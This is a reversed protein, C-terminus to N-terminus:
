RQALMERWILGMSAAANSGGDLKIEAMLYRYQMTDIILHGTEDAASRDSHACAANKNITYTDAEYVAGTAPWNNRYEPNILKESSWTHAGLVPTVDVLLEGPGNEMWGSIVIQADEDAADTGFVRVMIATAHKVVIITGSTDLGLDPPKGAVYAPFASPEWSTLLTDSATAYRWPNWRTFEYM